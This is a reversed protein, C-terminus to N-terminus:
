YASIVNNFGKIEAEHPKDLSKDNEKKTLPLVIHDKSGVCGFRYTPYVQDMDFNAIVKHIATLTKFYPNHSLVINHNKRINNSASFDIFFM